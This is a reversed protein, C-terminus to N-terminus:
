GSLGGTEKQLRAISQVGWLILPITLALAVVIAGGDLLVFAFIPLPAACMALLARGFRRQQASDLRADWRRTKGNSTWEWGVVARGDGDFEKSAMTVLADAAGDLMNKGAVIPSPSAPPRNPGRSAGPQVPARSATPRIPAASAGPRGPQPTPTNSRAPVGTSNDIVILRGNKEVVSYRGKPAEM